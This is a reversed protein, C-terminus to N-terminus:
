SPKVGATKALEASLKSELPAANKLPAEALILGGLGSASGANDGSAKMAALTQPWYGAPDACKPMPYSEMATADAGMAKLGSDMEPIDESKGAASFASLDAKLRDAGARAPGTKWATYQQACTLPGASARDHHVYLAGGAIAALAVLVGGAAWGARWTRRPPPERRQPQQPAYQPQGQWQPANAPPYQPPYQPQGHQQVNM